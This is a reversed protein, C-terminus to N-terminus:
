DSIQPSCPLYRLPKVCMGLMPKKDDKERDRDKKAEEDAVGEGKKGGIVGSVSIVKLLWEYLGSSAISVRM